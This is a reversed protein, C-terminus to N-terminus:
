EKQQKYLGDCDLITPLGRGWTDKFRDHCYCTLDIMTTEQDKEKSEEDKPLEVEAIQWTAFQCNRCVCTKKPFAIKGENEKMEWKLLVKSEIQKINEM